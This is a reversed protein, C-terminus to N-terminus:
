EILPPQRPSDRLPGDPARQGNVLLEELDGLESFHPSPVPGELKDPPDAM